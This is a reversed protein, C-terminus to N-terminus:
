LLEITFQMTVRTFDQLGLDLINALYIPVAAATYPSEFFFRMNKGFPIACIMPDAQTPTYQYCYNNGTTPGGAGPSPEIGQYNGRFYLRLPILERYRYLNETVDGGGDRHTRIDNTAPLGLNLIVAGLGERVLIGGAGAPNKEAWVPNPNNVVPLVSDNLCEITIVDLKILAQKYEHSNTMNTPYPITLDYFGFADLDASHTVIVKFKKKAEDISNVKVFNAM